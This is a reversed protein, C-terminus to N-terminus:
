RRGKKPCPKAPRRWPTPTAFEGGPWCKRPRASRRWVSDISPEAVIRSLYIGRRDRLYSASFGDGSELMGVSMGVSPTRRWPFSEEERM